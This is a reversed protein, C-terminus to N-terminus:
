SFFFLCCVSKFDLLILSDLPWMPKQLCDRSNWWKSICKKGKYTNLHFVHETFDIHQLHEQARGELSCDACCQVFGLDAARITTCVTKSRVNRRRATFPLVLPPIHQLFFLSVDQQQTCPLCRFRDIWQINAMSLLVNRGFTHHSIGLTNRKRSMFVRSKASILM